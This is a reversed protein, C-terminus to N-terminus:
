SRGAAGLSTQCYAGTAWRASAGIEFTPCPRNSDPRACWPASRPLLMGIHHFRYVRWDSPNTLALEHSNSDGWRYWFSISSPLISHSPITRMSAHGFPKPLRDLGSRAGWSM